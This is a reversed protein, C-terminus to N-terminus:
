RGAGAGICGRQASRAGNSAAAIEAVEQASADTQDPNALGESALEAALSRGSATTVRYLRRYRKDLRPRGADADFFTTGELMQYVAAIAQKGCPTNGPPAKIGVIGVALRIGDVWVELTDAEIVRVRTVTFQAPPDPPASPPQQASLPMALWLALGLTGLSRTTRNM